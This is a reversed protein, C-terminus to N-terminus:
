WIGEGCGLDHEQLQGEVKRQIFGCRLPGRGHLSRLSEGQRKLPRGRWPRHQGQILKLAGPENSVLPGERKMLMEAMFCSCEITGLAEPGPTM